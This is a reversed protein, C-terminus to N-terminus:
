SGQMEHAVCKKFNFIASFHLLDRYDADTLTKAAVISGPQFRNASPLFFERFGCVPKLDPDLRTFQGTERQDVQQVIEIRRDQHISDLASPIRTGDM